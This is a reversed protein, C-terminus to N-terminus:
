CRCWCTPGACCRRIPPRSAAWRSTTAAAPEATPATSTSRSPPCGRWGRRARVANGAPGAARRLEGDPRRQGRHGRPRAHRDHVHDASGVAPRLGRDGGPLRGQGGSGRGAGGPRRLAGARRQAAPVRAAARASIEAVLATTPASDDDEVVRTPKRCRAAPRRPSGASRGPHSPRPPRWSISDLPLRLGAPSDGELLVIRGRRLRWDASAWGSDDERRHLPLVYAAPETVPEDLRAMLAARRDAADAELDDDTSLLNAQPSACRPPWGAWRSGRLRAAGALLAPRPRRRRRRAVARRRRAGGRITQPRPPWPDALLADDTWLPEGDTRWHLGIQWRPLPEGPYWKGQSRQM